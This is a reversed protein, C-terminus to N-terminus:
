FFSLCPFLLALRCVFATFLCDASLGGRWPKPGATGFYTHSRQEPGVDDVREVEVLVQQQGEVEFEDEGDDAPEIQGPVQVPLGDMEHGLRAGGKKEGGVRADWLIRTM